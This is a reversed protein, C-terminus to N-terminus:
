ENIRGEQRGRGERVRIKPTGNNLLAEFNTKESPCKTKKRRQLTADNIFRKGTKEYKQGRIKIASNFLLLLNETQVDM